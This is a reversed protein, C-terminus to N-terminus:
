PLGFQVISHTSFDSNVEVFQFCDTLYSRFWSFATEKDELLKEVINLLINHDIIDFAALDLLM